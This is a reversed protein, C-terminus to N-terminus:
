RTPAIPSGDDAHVVTIAEMPCCDAADLVTEDPPVIERIAVAHNGQLTFHQPASGACLGSGICRRADVTVRWDTSVM